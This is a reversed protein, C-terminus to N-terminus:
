ARYKRRNNAGPHCCRWKGMVTKVLIRAKLSRAINLYNETLASQFIKINYLPFRTTTQLKKEFLTGGPKIRPDSVCM